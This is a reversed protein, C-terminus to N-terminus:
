NKIQNNKEKELTEKDTWNFRVMTEELLANANYEIYEKIREENDTRYAVTPAKKIFEIFGLFFSRINTLLNGM